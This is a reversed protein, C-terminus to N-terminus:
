PQGALRRRVREPYVTTFRIAAVLAVVTAAIGISPPVSPIFALTLDAAVMVAFAAAWAATIVYNTRIFAPRAWFEPPTQERAYQLTFPRAVAISGLVILFLGADVCLRVTFLSWAPRAFAGFLALGAFLAFTGLELIKPSKGEGFWQRGLLIASTAAALALAPMAGVFREFVAFVIFPAFGLLIGM